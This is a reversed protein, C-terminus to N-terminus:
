HSYMVIIPFSPWDVNEDAWVFDLATAQLTKAGKVM